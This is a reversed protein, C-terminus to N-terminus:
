GPRSVSGTFARGFSAKAREYLAIDVQNREVIAAREAPSLDSVPRRDLAVMEMHSPLRPWGFRRCLLAVSEDFREQLGVVHFRDLAAQARELLRADDHHPPWDMAGGLLAAQGNHMEVMEPLSVYQLLSLREAHIREHMYHAPERSAYYYHSVARDVPDRLFTFYASRGAFAQHVGYEMHGTVLRIRRRDFAQLAALDALIDRARVHSVPYHQGVKFRPLLM